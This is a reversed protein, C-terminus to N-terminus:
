KAGARHSVLQENCRIYQRLFAYVRFNDVHWSDFGGVVLCDGEETLYFDGLTPYTFVKRTAKADAFLSSVYSRKLSYGAFNSFPIVEPIDDIGAIGINQQYLEIKQGDVMVYHIFSASMEYEVSM